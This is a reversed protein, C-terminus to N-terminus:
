LLILKYVSIFPQLKHIVITMFKYFSSMSVYVGAFKFLSILNFVVKVREFSDCLVICSKRSQNNEYDHLFILLFIIQNWMFKFFIMPLLAEMALIFLKKLENIKVSRDGSSFGSLTSSDIINPEDDSFPGDESIPTTQKRRSDKLLKCKIGTLCNNRTSFYDFWQTIYLYPNM